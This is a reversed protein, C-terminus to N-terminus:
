AIVATYVHMFGSHDTYFKTGNILTEKLNKFTTDMSMAPYRTTITLIKEAEQNRCISIGWNKLNLFWICVRYLSRTQWAQGKIDSGLRANGCKESGWNKSFAVKKEKNLLM